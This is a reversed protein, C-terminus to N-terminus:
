PATTTSSWPATHHATGKLRWNGRTGDTARLILSSCYTEAAQEPRCRQVVQKGDATQFRIGVTQLRRFCGAM